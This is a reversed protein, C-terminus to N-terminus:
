WATLARMGLEVADPIIQVEQYDMDIISKRGNKSWGQLDPEFKFGDAKELLMEKM